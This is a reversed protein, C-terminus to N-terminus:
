VPGEYGQAHARQDAGRLRVAEAAAPLKGRKKCADQLKDLAPKIGAFFAQAEPAGKECGKALEGVQRTFTVFEDLRGDMGDLFAPVDDCLHEVFTKEKVEVGREYLVRISHLSDFVDAWTTPRPATRYSQLGDIDIARLFSSWAWATWRWISRRGSISRRRRAVPRLPVGAGPRGAGCIRGAGDPFAEQRRTAAIREGYVHRSYVRGEARVALRWAGPGPVEWNLNMRKREYKANPRAEHWLKQGTLLGITLPTKPFHVEAGSFPKGPGADKLLDTAQGDSPHAMALVTDGSGVLGLVLPAAPLAIRTGAYSASDYVLDDAFRDPIIAYKMLARIRLCGANRMPSVQVFPCAGCVRWSTKVKEGRATSSTVEVVAEEGDTKVLKLSEVNGAEEGKESVPTLGVVDTQKQVRNSVLLLPGVKSAAMLLTRQNEVVLGGEIAPTGSVRKWGERKKLFEDYKGPIPAPSEGIDWVSVRPSARVSAASAARRPPKAARWDPAFFSVLDDEKSLVRAQTGDAKAACLSWGANVTPAHCFVLTRGM